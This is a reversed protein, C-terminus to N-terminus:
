YPAGAEDFGSISLDRELDSLLADDARDRRGCLWGSVFDASKGQVMVGGDSRGFEYGDKWDQPKDTV